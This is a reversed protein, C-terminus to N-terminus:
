MIMIMSVSPIILLDTKKIERINVPHISFFGGDLKLETVFGAIRIEM